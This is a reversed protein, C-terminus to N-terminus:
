GESRASLRRLQNTFKASWRAPAENATDFFGGLVLLRNSMDHARPALDPLFIEIANSLGWHELVAAINQASRQSSDSDTGPGHGEEEGHDEKEVSEM